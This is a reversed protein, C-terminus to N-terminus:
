RTLKESFSSRNTSILKFHLVPLALGGGGNSSQRCEATGCLIQLEKYGPDECWLFVVAKVLRCERFSSKDNACDSIDNNTRDYLGYAKPAKPLGVICYMRFAKAAFRTTHENSELPVSEPPAM